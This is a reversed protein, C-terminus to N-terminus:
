YRYKRPHHVIDLLLKHLDDDKGVNSEHYVRASAKALEWEGVSVANRVLQLLREQHLETTEGAFYVNEVASM